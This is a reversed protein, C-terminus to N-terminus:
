EKGRLLIKILKESYSLAGILGRRYSDQYNKNRRVERRKLIIEKRVKETEKMASDYGADTCCKLVPYTSHEKRHDELAKTKADNM